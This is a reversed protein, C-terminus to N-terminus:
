PLLTFREDLSNLTMDLFYHLFNAKSEKRRNKNADIKLKNYGSRQRKVKPITESLMKVCDPM